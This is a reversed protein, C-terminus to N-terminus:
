KIVIVEKLIYDEPNFNLQNGIFEIISGDAHAVSCPNENKANYSNPYAIGTQVLGSEVPFSATHGNDVSHNETPYENYTHAKLNTVICPVTINQGTEKDELVIDVEPFNEFEDAQLRGSDPYDPVVIKVGINIKYRNNEMQTDKERGYSYWKSSPDLTFKKGDVTGIIIEPIIIVSEGNRIVVGGLCLLSDDPVVGVSLLINNKIEEQLENKCQAYAQCRAAEVKAAISEAFTHSGGIPSMLASISTNLVLNNYYEQGNYVRANDLLTNEKPLGM